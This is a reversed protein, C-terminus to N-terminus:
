ETSAAVSLNLQRKVNRYHLKLHQHKHKEIILQVQQLHCHPLERHFQYYSFLGGLRGLATQATPYYEQLYERESDLLERDRFKVVFRTKVHNILCSIHYAMKFGGKESYKHYLASSLLEEYEM